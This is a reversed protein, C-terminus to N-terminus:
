APVYRRATRLGIRLMSAAGYTATPVTLAILAIPLMSPFIISSIAAVVATGFWQAHAKSSSAGAAFVSVKNELWELKSKM